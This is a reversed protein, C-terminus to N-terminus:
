PETDWARTQSSSGGISSLGAQGQQPAYVVAQQSGLRVACSAYGQHDTVARWLVLTVWTFIVRKFPERQLGLLPHIRETYKRESLVVLVRVINPGPFQPPPFSCKKIHSDGLSCRLSGQKTPFPDLALHTDLPKLCLCTHPLPALLNDTVCISYPM